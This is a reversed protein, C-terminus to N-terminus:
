KKVESRQDIVQKRGSSMDEAAQRISERTINNNEILASGYAFSRRQEEREQPTMEVSRALDMLKQLDDQM